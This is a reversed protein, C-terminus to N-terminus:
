RKTKKKEKQREILKPFKVMSEVLQNESLHKGNLNEKYDVGGKRVISEM